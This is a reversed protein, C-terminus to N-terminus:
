FLLSVHKKAEIAAQKQSVLDEHLTKNKELEDNELMQEKDFWLLRGMLIGVKTSV